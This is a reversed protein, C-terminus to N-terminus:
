RPTGSTATHTLYGTTRTLTTIKPTEQHQQTTITFSVLSLLLFTSSTQKRSTTEINEKNEKQKKEANNKPPTRIVNDKKETSM